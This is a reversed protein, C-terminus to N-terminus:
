DNPNWMGDTGQQGSQTAGSGLHPNFPKWILDSLEEPSFMKVSGDTKAIPTKGSYPFSDPPCGDEAWMGTRAPEELATSPMGALNWNFMFFSNRAQLASLVDNKLYMEAFSTSSPAAAGLPPFCDDYDMQYMATADALSKVLWVAVTAKDGDAKEKALTSAKQSTFIIGLVLAGIIAIAGAGLWLATRPKNGTAASPRTGDTTLPDPTFSAPSAEQPSPVSTQKVSQSQATSPVPEFIGPVTAAPVRVETGVAQVSTTREIAGAEAWARLDELSAPGLESGDPLHVLYTAGSNDRM